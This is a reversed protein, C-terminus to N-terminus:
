EPKTPWEVEAPFGPQQDIRNLDIRYRKWLILQALEAETAEELDAADQLPAIRMAAEALRSDRTHRADETTPTPPTSPLRPAPLEMVKGDIVWREGSPFVFDEPLNLLARSQGPLGFSFQDWDQWQVVLGTELDFLAKKMRNVM